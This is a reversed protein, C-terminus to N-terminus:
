STVKYKFRFGSELRVYRIDNGLPNLYHEEFIIKAAESVSNDPYDNPFDVLHM